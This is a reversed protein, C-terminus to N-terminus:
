NCRRKMDSEGGVITFQHMSKMIGCQFCTTFIIATRAQSWLIMRVIITSEHNIRISMVNFSYAM